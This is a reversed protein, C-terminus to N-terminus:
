TSIPNSQLCTSALYPFSVSVHKQEQFLGLVDGLENITNLVTEALDKSAKMDRIEDGIEILESFHTLAIASNFDDDMGSLFESRTRSIRKFLKAEEQPNSERAGPNGILDYLADRTEHIKKAMVEYQILRHEAFDIRDRYHKSLILLRLSEASHKQLFDRVTMFNGTSKAMKRGNLMLLGTHIWYKAFPKKETYSEALAIEKEHHQCRKLDEGGAHIDLQPGLYRRSMVSCETHWGPRGRGWPSEWGLEDDNVRMWLVIDYPSRPKFRNDMKFGLSATFRSIMPSKGVTEAAAPHISHLASYLGFLLLGLLRCFLRASRRPHSLRGLDPFKKADFYIVGESEYTLGKCVLGKTMEIMEQVHDSARPYHNASRLHFRKMDELFAQEFRRSLALPDDNTQKARAILTDGIDTFNTVYDVEHGKYELYRIIADLAVYTRVHGLHCHCDTSLGCLYVNVKGRNNPEFPEQRGTM